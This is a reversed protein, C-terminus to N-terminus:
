QAQAVVEVVRGILQVMQAVMVVMIAKGLHVQAAQAQVAQVLLGAAVVLVEVIELELAALGTVLLVM